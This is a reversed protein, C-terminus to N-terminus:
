RVERRRTSLVKVMVRYVERDPKEQALFRYQALAEDYEGRAFSRAAREPTAPMTLEPEEEVEPEEHASVKSEAAVRKAASEGAEAAVRTFSLRSLSRYAFLGVAMLLVAILAMRLGLAQGKSQTSATSAEVVPTLDADDELGYLVRPNAILTAPEDASHDARQKPDSM